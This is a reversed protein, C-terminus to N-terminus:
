KTTRKNNPEDCKCKKKYSQMRAWAGFFPVLAIIYGLSHHLGGDWTIGCANAQSALLVMILIFLMNSAM